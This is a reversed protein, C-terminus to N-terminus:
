RGHSQTKRPRHQEYHNEKEPFKLSHANVCNPKCAGQLFLKAKEKNQIHLGREELTQLQQDVNIAPKDFARM